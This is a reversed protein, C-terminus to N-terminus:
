KDLAERVKRALEEISFPKRILTVGKELVRHHVIAEDTYGSMYVVKFDQRVQRLREILQNGSLQPMVVDTLILHIPEKQQECILLAEGGGAAEL